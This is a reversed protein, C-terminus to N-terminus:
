LVRASSHWRTISKIVTVQLGVALFGTDARHGASTISYPVLNCVYSRQSQDYTTLYSTARRVVLQLLLLGIVDIVLVCLSNRPVTVIRWNLHEAPQSYPILQQFDRELSM